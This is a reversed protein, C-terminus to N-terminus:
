ETLGKGLDCECTWYDDEKEWFGFVIHREVQFPRNFIVRFIKGFTLRCLWFELFVEKEGNLNRTEVVLIRDVQEYFRVRGIKKAKEVLESNSRPRLCVGIKDKDTKLSGFTFSSM